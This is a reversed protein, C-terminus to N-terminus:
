RFPKQVKPIFVVHVRFSLFFFYQKSIKHVFDKIVCKEIPENNSNYRARIILDCVSIHSFELYRKTEVPHCLVSCLHGSVPGVPGSDCHLSRQLSRCM